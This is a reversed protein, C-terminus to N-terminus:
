DSGEQWAHVDGAKVWDTTWDLDFAYLVSSDAAHMLNEIAEDSLGLNLVGDVIKLEALVNSELLADVQEQRETRGKTM